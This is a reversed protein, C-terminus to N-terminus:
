FHFGDTPLNKKKAPKILFAWGSKNDDKAM